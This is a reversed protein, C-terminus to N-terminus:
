ASGNFRAVAAVTPTLRQDLGHLYSRMCGLLHGSRRDRGLGAIRLGADAGFDELLERGSRRRGRARAPSPRITHRSAVGRGRPEWKSNAGPGMCGRPRVWAHM